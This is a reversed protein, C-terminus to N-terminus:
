RAAEAPALAEWSGGLDVVGHASSESVVSFRVTRDLSLEEGGAGAGLAVDYDGGLLALAPVDFALTAAGDELVVESVSRFLRSGDGSRLELALRM